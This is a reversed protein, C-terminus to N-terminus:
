VSIEVALLQFICFFNLIGTQFIFKLCSAENFRHFADKPCRLKSHGFSDENNVFVYEIRNLTAFSLERVICTCVYYM